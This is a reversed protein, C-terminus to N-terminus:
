PQSLSRIPLRLQLSCYAGGRPPCLCVHWAKETATNPEVIFCTSYIFLVTFCSLSKPWILPAETGAAYVPMRGSPSPARSTKLPGIPTGPSATPTGPQHPPPLPPPRPWPAPTASQVHCCPKCQTHLHRLLQWGTIGASRQPRGEERVRGARETGEWM